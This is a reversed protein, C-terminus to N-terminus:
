REMQNELSKRVDDLMDEDIVKYDKIEIEDTQLGVLREIIDKRVDQDCRDLFYGITNLIPISSPNNYDYVKLDVSGLKYNLDVIVDPLDEYRVVIEESGTDVYVLKEKKILLEKIEELSYQNLLGKEQNLELFKEVGEKDYEKLKELDVEVLHCKRGNYEIINITKSIFGEDLLKYKIGGSIEDSLYVQNLKDITIEPINQTVEVMYDYDDLLEGNPNKDVQIYLRNNVYNAVTLYYKEGREEDFVKKM